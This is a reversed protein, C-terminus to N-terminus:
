RLTTAKSFFFLFLLINDPLLIQRKTWINVADDYIELLHWTSDIGTKYYVRLIDWAPDIWTWTAQAHWFSLVVRSRGLLNQPPMILKTAEKNDSQYDFRAIYLGQATTDPLAIIGSSNTYNKKTYKWHVIDGNVEGKEIQESWGTPLSGGEFGEFFLQTTQSFLQYFNITAVILILLIRRM